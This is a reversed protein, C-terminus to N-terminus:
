YEFLLRLLTYMQMSLGTLERSHHLGDILIAPRALAESTWNDTFNTGILYGAMESQLYSKGVSIPKVVEPYETQILLMLSKLESPLLYNDM